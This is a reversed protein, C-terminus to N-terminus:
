VKEKEESMETNVRMTYIDTYKGNSTCVFGAKKYLSCAAKNSINVGLKIANMKLEVVRKQCHKLLEQALGRRRMKPTVAMPEIWVANVTKSLGSNVVQSEILRNASGITNKMLHATILKRIHNLVLRPCWILGLMRMLLCPSRKRNEYLAKTPDIVLIVFGVIEGNTLCVWVERAVSDVYLKWWRRVIFPLSHWRLDDVFSDCCIDILADIDDLTARRIKIYYQNSKEQCMM